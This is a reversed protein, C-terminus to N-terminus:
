ELSKLFRRPRLLDRVQALKSRLNTLRTTAISTTHYGGQFSSHASGAYYSDLQGQVGSPEFALFTITPNAPNLFDISGGFLGGGYSGTNSFRIRQGSQSIVVLAQTLNSALHRNDFRNNRFQFSFQYHKLDALQYSGDPLDGQFWFTGTGIPVSSTQHDLTTDFTLKFRM